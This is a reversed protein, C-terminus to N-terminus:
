CKIHFAPKSDTNAVWFFFFILKVAWFTFYPESNQESLFHITSVLFYWYPITRKNKKIGLFLLPLIEFETIDEWQIPTLLLCEELYRWPSLKITCHRGNSFCPAWTNNHPPGAELAAFKRICLPIAISNMSNSKFAFHFRSQRSLPPDPANFAETPTACMASIGLPMRPM